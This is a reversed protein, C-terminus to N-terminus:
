VKKDRFREMYDKHADNNSHILFSYDQKKEKLAKCNEGDVEKLWEEFKPALKVQVLSEELEKAFAQPDSAGKNQFIEQWAKLILDGLGDNAEDNLAIGFVNGRAQDAFKPALLAEVFKDASRKALTQLFIEAQEPTVPKTSHVQM